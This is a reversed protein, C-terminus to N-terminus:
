QKELIQYTEIEGYSVFGMKHYIKKGMVSANLFCYKNSNTKAELILKETIRTGIRQGRGKPITGIMHLGANNYSDIFILGCGICENNELYNFIRIKYPDESISYVIDADVIYGFAESTAKAFNIADEKTRVQHINEEYELSTEVVKLELAMNTQRFLLKVRSDIGLFNPKPITVIDPLSGNQALDIIESLIGKKTSICFVRNPWASDTVSVAKYTDKEVLRNTKNGIYIWFEYLNNLIANNM